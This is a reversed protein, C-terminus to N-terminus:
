EPILEVRLAETGAGARRTAYHAPLAQREIRIEAFREALVSAQLDIEFHPDTAWVVIRRGAAQAAARQTDLLPRPCREGAANVVLTSNPQLHPDASM